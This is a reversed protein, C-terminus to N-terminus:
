SSKEDSLLYIPALHESQRIYSWADPDVYARTTAILDRNERMSESTVLEDTVDTPVGTRKQWTWQQYAGFAPEAQPLSKFHVLTISWRQKDRSWQAGHLHWPSWLCGAVGPPGWFRRPVNSRCMALVKELGPEDGGARALWLSVKNHLVVLDPLYEPIRKVYFPTVNQGGYFHGGCSERFPGSWFSKRSNFTLGCHSFVERILPVCEVPCIIDDGYVSLVDITPNVGLVLCCASALAWFLLTEMEFTYGNGMASFMEYSGSQGAGVHDAGWQWKACRLDQMVKLWPKSDQFILEVLACSITGSANKLDVTALAGTRSGICALHQHYTQADKELLGRRRLRRRIMRGVGKQFFVNWGPQKGIVRNAEVNKNVSDLLDSDVVTFSHGSIGVNGVGMGPHRYEALAVGYPLAASTIHTESEWKNAQSARRRALSSTAGSGHDCLTIFEGFDFSDGLTKSVLRQAIGIVREIKQTPFPDWTLRYNTMACQAEGQLFNQLAASQRAVKSSSDDTTLKSFVEAALYCAAFNSAGRAAMAQEYLEDRVQKSPAIGMGLASYLTEMIRKAASRRGALENRPKSLGSRRKSGVCVRSPRTNM